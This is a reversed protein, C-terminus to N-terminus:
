LLFDEWEQNENLEYIHETKKDELFLNITRDFDPTLEYKALEEKKIWFVEGESSSKLEGAFADTKYLIVVYRIGDQTWQKTGCIKLNWITLNTEEKIERITSKIFSEGPEIHGGPFTLGSWAKGKKNLVLIEGNQNFIMCMNMLVVTERHRM